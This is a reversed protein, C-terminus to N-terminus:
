YFENKYIIEIEKRFVPLDDVISNWIVDLNVGFYEHIIFNRFSIIDRWPIDSYVKKLKVSIKNTAEGIVVLKYLLANRLLENKIFENKKMGEIYNLIFDISEIIDLLLQNDQRM